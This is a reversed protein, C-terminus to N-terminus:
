SKGELIARCKYLKTHTVFLRGAGFTRTGAMFVLGNVVVMTMFSRYPENFNPATIWEHHGIPLWVCASERDCAFLIGKYIVM